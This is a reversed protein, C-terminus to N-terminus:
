HVLVKCGVAGPRHTLAEVLFTQFEESFEHPSAYLVPYMSVEEVPVFRCGFNLATEPIVANAFSYVLGAFKYTPVDTYRQLFKAQSSVDCKRTNEPRCEHLTPVSAALATRMLGAAQNSPILGRFGFSM